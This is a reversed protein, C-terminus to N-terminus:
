RAAHLSSLCHQRLCSAHRAPMGCALLWSGYSMTDWIGAAHGLMRTALGVSGYAMTHASARMWALVCSTCMHLVATECRSCSRRHLM